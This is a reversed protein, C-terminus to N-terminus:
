LWQREGDVDCRNRKMQRCVEGATRSAGINKRMPRNQAVETPANGKGVTRTRRCVGNMRKEGRKEM